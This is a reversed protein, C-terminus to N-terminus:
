ELVSYLEELSRCVRRFSVDKQMNNNQEQFAEKKRDKKRNRHSLVGGGGGPCADGSPDEWM